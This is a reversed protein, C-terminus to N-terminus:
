LEMMIREIMASAQKIIPHSRLLKFNLSEKITIGKLRLVMKKEFHNNPM